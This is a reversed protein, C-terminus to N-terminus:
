EDIGIIVFAQACWMVVRQGLAFFRSAVRDPAVLCAPRDIRFM